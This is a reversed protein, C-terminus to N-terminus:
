PIITKLEQEANRAVLGTLRWEGNELVGAAYVAFEGNPSSITFSLGANGAAEAGAGSTNVSGLVLGKQKISGGTLEIAIPNNTLEEIAAKYTQSNKIIGQVSTFIVTFLIAIALVILGAIICLRIVMQKTTLKKGM